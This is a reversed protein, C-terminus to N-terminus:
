AEVEPQAAHARFALALGLVEVACGALVFLVRPTNAALLELATLVIIWGALLLLFGVFKM